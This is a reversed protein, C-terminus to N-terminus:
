KDADHQVDNAGVEIECIQWAGSKIQHQQSRRADRAAPTESSRIRNNAASPIAAGHASGNKAAIKGRITLCFSERILVFRRHIQWTDM